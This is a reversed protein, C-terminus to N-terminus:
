ISTTPQNGAALNLMRQCLFALRQVAVKEEPKIERADAVMMKHSGIMRGTMSIVDGTKFSTLVHDVSYFLGQIIQGLEGRLFLLTACGKVSWNELTSNLQPEGHSSEPPVIAEYIYFLDAARAAKQWRIVHEVSGILIRKFDQPLPKEVKRKQNKTSKMVTTTESPNRSFRKDNSIIPGSQDDSYKSINLDPEILGIGLLPRGLPVQSVNESDDNFMSNSPAFFNQAPMKPKIATIPRSYPTNQTSHLTSSQKSSTSYPQNRVAGLNVYDTSETFQRTLNWSVRGNM